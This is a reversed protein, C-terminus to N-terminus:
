GRIQQLIGKCLRIWEESEMKKIRIRGRLQQEQNSLFFSWIGPPLNWDMRYELTVADASLEAQIQPHSGMLLAQNLEEEVKQIVAEETDSFSQLIRWLMSKEELREVELEGTDLSVNEQVQPIGMGALKRCIGEAAAKDHIYFAMIILAAMTGLVCFMVWAAEITYSGQCIGVASNGHEKRRGYEIGPGKGVGM